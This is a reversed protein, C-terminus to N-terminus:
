PMVRRLSDVPVPAAALRRDLEGTLDTLQKRLATQENAQTELEGRLARLQAELQDIRTSLEALASGQLLQEAQAVRSELADLRERTSQASAAPSMVALAVLWPGCRMM